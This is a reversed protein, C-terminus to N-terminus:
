MSSTVRWATYALQVIRVTRMRYACGCLVLCVAGCLVVCGLVCVCYTSVQSLRRATLIAARGGAPVASHARVASVRQPARCAEVAPSTTVAAVQTIPQTTPMSETHSFISNHYCSARPSCSQAITRHCVCCNPVAFRSCQLTHCAVAAVICV